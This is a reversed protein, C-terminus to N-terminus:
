AGAENVEMFYERYENRNSASDIGITRDSPNIDILFEMVGGPISDAVKQNTACYRLWQAVV